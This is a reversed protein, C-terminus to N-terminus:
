KDWFVTSTQADITGQAEVNAGNYDYENQPYLLRLPIHRGNRSPSLSLPVNPVGLRRYDVWAEFNNIGPLALYKQTAILNIKDQDSGAASWSVISRSQALYDEAEDAANEVGLWIFSETVADIYAQHADGNLWGRQTAEAQLFLSEVSTFLWQPQTASKALGPGAVESSNVAKPNDPDLDVFGFDYGFYLDDESLPDRAENFVYQYRIDNNNMFLGLLYNNARNFNDILTGTHDRLYTNYFPNQKYEDVAYGPNVEATEGSMLFGSGDAQIKSLQESPATTGFIESQRILLKLRQTNVLKRWMLADGGFMIDADEIGPNVLVDASAFLSAAEDLQLLLDNYIDQGNDYAPSIFESLNLAQTYPVNNYQDVLYMYGISRIVKAIAVYFTQETEIAKREMVNADMLINYWSVTPYTVTTNGNVWEDQEYTTTLDYNELPNSPGYSGSRAWYGMWHAAYDYSTAMKTATANLVSPLLLNPQMAEDTPSNPNDNIDFFSDSCGAALFVLLFLFSYKLNKM